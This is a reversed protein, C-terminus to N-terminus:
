AAKWGMAALYAIETGPGCGVDIATAADELWGDTEAEILEPSPVSLHWWRYIGDVYPDAV